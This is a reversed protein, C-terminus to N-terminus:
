EGKALYRKVQERRIGLQGAIEAIGKGAARLEHTRQRRDRLDAVSDRKRGRDRCKSCYSRRNETRRLRKAGELRGCASCLIIATAGVAVTALELGLATWVPPVGYLTLRSPRNRLWVKLEAGALWYLVFRYPPWARPDGPAHNEDVLARLWAAAEEKERRDKSMFAVLGVHAQWAFQLWDAIREHYLLGGATDETNTWCHPRRHAFPWGHEKCLGLAGYRSAFLRLRDDAVPDGRALDAFEALMKANATALEFSSRGETSPSRYEFHLYEDDIRVGAMPRPWPDLANWTGADNEIPWFFQPMDTTM